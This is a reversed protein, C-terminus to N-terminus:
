VYATATATTPAACCAVHLVHTAFVCSTGQLWCRACPTVCCQVGSACVPVSCKIHEGWSALLEGSYDTFIEFFQRRNIRPGAASGLERWRLFARKVDELSWRLYEDIDKFNCEPLTKKSLLLGM